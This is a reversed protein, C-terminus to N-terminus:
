KKKPYVESIQYGDSSKSKKTKKLKTGKKISKKKKNYKDVRYQYDKLMYKDYSYVDKRFNLNGYDDVFATLYTIDIPIKTKLGITKKETGQLRKMIADVDINDNFLAIAKLMDRPKQIRM